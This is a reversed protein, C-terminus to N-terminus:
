RRWSMSASDFAWAAPMAIRSWAVLITSLRPIIRCQNGPPVELIAHNGVVSEWTDLSTYERDADAIVGDDPGGLRSLLQGYETIELLADIGPSAFTSQNICTLAPGGNSLQIQPKRIPIRKRRLHHQPQDFDRWPLRCSSHTPIPLLSGTDV